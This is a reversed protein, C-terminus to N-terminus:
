SIAGASRLEAVEAPSFGADALVADTDTTTPDPLVTGAPMTTGALLPALQRLRGGDSTAVEVVARRAVFQPDAVLEPVSAVPAVCTDNAALDAVWEDRPKSAFADAFDHRVKDQADDDMQHDLWQECGLRTCLNRYFTPEIAGVAVWKDDACRYTDYCAYRGTLIYHGPGPETGIALYEDVYLAMLSLVGDAISVDLRAGAGTRVQRVLAAMIAMAAQMGGGAADAVTAGPLPPKGADGRESCHLYGGVALYNVDHGAQLAAPGSQGFGTTSCVVISPNVAALDDYGLGLKAMVGPRFSELVADSRAALRLFANRGADSKLDIRVRRMGRNGSYAYVPPTIQVAGAAPVAGVKIVSAGYDALIRSARAAPGVTSLDLVTVGDLMAAGQDADDNTV